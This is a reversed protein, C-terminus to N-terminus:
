RRQSPVRHKPPQLQDLHEKVVTSTPSAQFYKGFSYNWLTRFAGMLGKCSCRGQCNAQCCRSKPASAKSTQTVLGSM